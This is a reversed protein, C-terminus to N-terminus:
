HFELHDEFKHLHQQSCLMKGNELSNLVPLFATTLSSGFNLTQTFSVLWTNIKHFTGQKCLILYLAFVVYFDVYIHSNGKCHAQARLPIINGRSGELIVAHRDELHNKMMATCM